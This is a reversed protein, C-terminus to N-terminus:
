VSIGANVVYKGFDGADYWGGTVDIEKSDDIPHAMGYNDIWEPQVAAIDPNHGAKRALEERNSSTIYDAQIDVGSRAQYFYNLSDTLLNGPIRATAESKSYIDYAIAFVNSKTNECFVSFNYRDKITDEPVYDTFDIIQLYEGSDADLGFPVTEGEFVVDGGNKIQFAKPTDDGEPVVLVAKKEMNPFYGVQNVRIISKAKAPPEKYDNEDSTTDVLSLNDFKLITGAPFCDVTQYEGAGGFHFAWEAAEITQDATFESEFENWEGGVVPISEWTADFEEQTPNTANNHWVEIDGSQNGIKTYIFGDTSPFVSWKVEYSDGEVIMIDRHRLQCDWRDAGGNAEGGPNIITVNFSGDAVEYSMEGGGSAVIQWSGSKNDEFDTQSLQQGANVSVTNFLLGFSLVLAFFKRKM